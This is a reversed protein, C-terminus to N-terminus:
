WDRYSQRPVPVTTGRAPQLIRVNLVLMLFISVRLTYLVAAAAASCRTTASRRGVHSIPAIRPKFAGGACSGTGDLPARLRRSFGSREAADNLVTGVVEETLM